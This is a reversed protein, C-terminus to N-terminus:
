SVFRSSKLVGLFKIYCVTEAYSINPSFSMMKGVEIETKISM